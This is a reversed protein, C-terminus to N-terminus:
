KSTRFSSLFLEGKKKLELKEQGKMILRKRGASLRLLVFSM